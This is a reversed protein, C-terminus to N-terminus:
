RTSMAPATLAPTWVVGHSQLPATSGAAGVVRGQDNIDAAISPTSPHAVLAGLDVMRGREWLFAHRVGSATDSWGVVQDRDNVALAGSEAGGLTGLDIMEGRRWLFAHDDGSATLSTGVVHGSENLANDLEVRPGAYPSSLAVSSGVQSRGGGLTGLDIMERRRWLFAHQENTATLSTGAVRGSEDIADAHSAIGGLTGLDVVGGGAQWVAAHEASGTWRVTAVQGRNNIATAMSVDDPAQVVSGDRNWVVVPFATPTTSRRGLVQGRENVDVATGQVGEATLQRRGGLSWTFPFLEVPQAISGGPAQESGVVQGRRSIDAPAAHRGPPSLPVALGDEWLYGDSWLGETASTSGIVQGRENVGYAPGGPLETVTFARVGPGATAGGPTLVGAPAAAVLVVALVVACRRLMSM